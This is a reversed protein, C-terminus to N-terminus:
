TRGRSVWRMFQGGYAMAGGWIGCRLKEQAEKEQRAQMARADEMARVADAADSRAAAESRAAADATRRADDSAARAADLQALWESRM